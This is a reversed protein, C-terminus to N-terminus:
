SSLADKCPNPVPFSRPPPEEIQRRRRQDELIFPIQGERDRSLREQAGGRLKELKVGDMRQMKIVKVLNMLGEIFFLVRM